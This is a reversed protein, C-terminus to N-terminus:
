KIIGFHKMLFIANMVKTTGRVLKYDSFYHDNVNKLEFCYNIIHDSYQEEMKTLALDHTAIFGILDTDFDMLKELFRQSGILKDQSNTGKLIEDLIVYQPFGNELREILIRLKNIENKFYSDGSALNDVTRISTFIDMPYFEMQEASVNAGNMGLVLNTGITRLFTSKGAMNAGTIIAINRSRNTSFDNRVVTEEHLLPHFAGELIFANPSKSIIPTTFNKFKSNFIALSILAEFTSINQIWQANNEVVLAVRKELQITFYLRWLSLSNLLFGVIPFGVAELAEMSAKVGKLQESSKQAQILGQQLEQNLTTEFNEHEILQLLEILNELQSANLYTYSLAANIKKQFAFNLLFGIPIAIVIWFFVAKKPFGLVALYIFVIANICGIGLPLFRLSQNKFQTESQGFVEATSLQVRRSLTLFDTMWKSKQELEKIGAQRQLIVDRDVLLHSLFQKLKFNGVLSQTKNLRNFLSKGELIDLDKNYVNDFYERNLHSYEDLRDDMKIQEIVEIADNKLGIASAVSSSKIVFVIFVGFWVFALLMVWTIDTKIYYYGSLAFLVFFLLRLNSLLSKQKKLILLESELQKQIAIFTEM